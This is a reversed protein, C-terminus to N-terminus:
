IGEGDLGVEHQEELNDILGQNMINLIHERFRTFERSALMKKRNRPKKFPVDVSTTYTGASGVSFMVIRDALYIAEDADHTVFVITKKQDRNIELLLDQLYIRTLPDLAGFPEDMLMLDSGFALARAIAARQKMGGSMQGPYKKISLGLQVLELYEGALHQLEKKTKKGKFKQKLALVINEKASLWPFLSYDQFVVGCDPAKQTSSVGNVIIDGKQPQELGAILRLLTSKGCGSPGMLVLFEEEKVDLEINKLIEVGQYSFHISKAEIKNKVMEFQLRQKQLEIAQAM